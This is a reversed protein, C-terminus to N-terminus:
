EPLNIKIDAKARLSKIYKELKQQYNKQALYNELDDKVDDYHLRTPAKKEVLKVIHFGIETEIIPTIQGEQMKFVAADIEPLGLDGKAIFGLDGGRDKSIPDESYRKALVAFDQGSKLKKQIDEIRKRAEAKEAPTADPKIRVLIHRLHVQPGTMRELYKSVQTLDAEEDKSAAQVPKGDMKAKIKDYFKRVQDDSPMQVKSKVEQEILKIKMIQEEVRKNFQSETMGEKDLQDKFAKQVDEPSRQRGDEDTMFPEKFQQMGRELEPPSVKIKQKKAEQLLLKEEILRDLVDKKLRAIKEPTQEKEPATKQYREIFPEAERDLEDSFIPENNVVAVPKGVTKVSSDAARLGSPLALVALSLCLPLLKSFPKM